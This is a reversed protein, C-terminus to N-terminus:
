QTKPPNTFISPNAKINSDNEGAEGLLNILQFLIPELSAGLALPNLISTLETKKSCGSTAVKGAFADNVFQNGLVVGAIEGTIHGGNALEVFQVASGQSCWSEYLKVAPAYPIIEDNLSHYLLVPATPRQAPNVGMTQNNVLASVQPDYLFRDGLKQFKKSSISQFAFHGLDAVACNERVFQLEAQGYPTALENILPIATAGYASPAALGAIAAPLFGAFFTGDILEVVSTLNAPTGGSSWGKINQNLDPAYSPQLGAAWGTAIAGGSYGVGVIAPEAILGVQKGFNKAARISDLVGTGSLKGAGFANDPGEYDPANVIYGQFLYTQIILNEVSVILSEQDAGVRYTYSPACQPGNSDEATHFSVFKDTKALVPKMITTVSTIATLNVSETRYQVQYAEVPEPLLGFIGIVVQRSKLVDGNKANQYGPASNYFDDDQPPPVLGRETYIHSPVVAASIITTAYVVLLGLLTSLSLQM